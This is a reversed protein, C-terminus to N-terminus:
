LALPPDLCNRQEPTNDNNAPKVNVPQLRGDDILSVHATGPSAFAPVHDEGALCFPCTSGFNHGEDPTRHEDVFVERLEGDACIIVSQLDTLPTIVNARGHQSMVFAQVFLAFTLLLAM